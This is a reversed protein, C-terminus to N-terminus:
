KWWSNETVITRSLIVWCIKTLLQCFLNSVLLFNGFNKLNPRQLPIIFPHYYHMQRIVALIPNPFKHWRHHNTQSLGKFHSGTPWDLRRNIWSRTQLNQTRSTLLAVSRQNRKLMTVSIRHCKWSKM